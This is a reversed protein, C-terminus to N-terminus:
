PKLSSLIDNVRSLQNTPISRQLRQYGREVDAPIDVHIIFGKGHPGYGKKDDRLRPIEGMILSLFRQLTWPPVRMDLHIEDKKVTVTPKRSAYHVFATKESVWEKQFSADTRLQMTADQVLIVLSHKILQRKVVKLAESANSGCNTSQTELFVKKSDFKFDKQLVKFLIEAESKDESKIHSLAPDNQINEVLYTTSHGKGGCILLKDAIQNMMAQGALMASQPDSNGLLIMLDAKTRGYHAKLANRTLSSLDRKSLFASLTNIAQVIEHKNYM